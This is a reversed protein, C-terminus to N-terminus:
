SSEAADTREVFTDALLEKTARVPRWDAHPAVGLCLKANVYQSAYMVVISIATILSLVFPGGWWVAAVVAPVSVGLVALAVRAAQTIQGTVILLASSVQFCSQVAGAIAIVLLMTATPRMDAGYAFTIAMPGLIAIFVVLAVAVTTGLTAANSLLRVVEAKAGSAWLRAAPPVVALLTLNNLLVVQMGLTVALAYQTALLPSLIATALWITGQLIMFESVDVGFLRIGHGLAERVMAVGEGMPPMAIESRAYALAIVFQIGAVALYAVLVGVLSESRAVYIIGAIVMLALISRVYHMTAVSALVRGNAAFIDSLMLRVSEVAILASALLYVPLFGGDGILASCGVLAIVPATILSLMATALLHTGAITRRRQAVPEAPILRIVNAGLGLRGILPGISLAALIAFFVAADQYDLGRVIVVTLLFSAVM